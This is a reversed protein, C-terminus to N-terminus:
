SEFLFLNIKICESNEDVDALELFTEDVSLFLIQNVLLVMVVVVLVEVLHMEVLVMVVVMAVEMQMEVLVM